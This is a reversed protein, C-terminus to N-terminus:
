ERHLVEALPGVGFDYIDPTESLINFIKILGRKWEKCRVYPSMINGGSALTEGRCYGGCFHRFACEACAKNMTSVDLKRLIKLKNSDNWLEYINGYQAKGVEFGSRVMNICPYITGDSDICVTSCGTGCYVFRIGARIATITEALLTSRTMRQRDKDHRVANYLIDFEQAFSIPCIENIKANGIMVLSSTVFQEAGIDKALKIMDPIRTFNGSHITTSLRTRCGAEVLLKIGRLAEKFSKKSGRLISNTTADPGDLSVQTLVEHEALFLAVERDILTGNTNLRLNFGFKKGAVIAAIMKDKVLLPEGGSIILLKPPRIVLDNLQKIVFEIEKQNMENNSNRPQTGAYCHLCKLNCLKTINITAMALSSANPMISIHQNEPTMGNIASIIQFVFERVEDITYNSKKGIEKVISEATDGNRICGVVRDLWKDGALLLPHDPWLYTVRNDAWKFKVLKEM